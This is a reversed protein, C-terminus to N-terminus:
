VDEDENRVKDGPAGTRDHEGVQVPGLDGSGGM